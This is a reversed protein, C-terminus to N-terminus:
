ATILCTAGKYGTGTSNFVAMIGAVPINTLDSHGAALKRTGTNDLVDQTGLNRVSVITQPSVVGISVLAICDKLNPLLVPVNWPGVLNNQLQGNVFFAAAQGSVEWIVMGGTAGVGSLPTQTTSEGAGAVKTLIVGFDTGSTNSTQYTWGAAPTQSAPNYCHAVLLNGNTPAVGFTASNGGGVSFAVQVFVPPTGANYSTGTGSPVSYGGTGNLYKTADNPAKPAFGHKTTSVNNTTIDSTSLDSDKVLAYAPTAAGNLFQTADSPAAPALGAHTADQLRVAPAADSRMYTTAVGNIAVAGAVATPNAGAPSSVTEWTPDANAGHTTLVQLAVGPTRVTWGLAGRYIVSGQVASLQDLVTQVSVDDLNPIAAIAAIMDQWKRMFELTPARSPVVIPVSGGLPDLRNAM